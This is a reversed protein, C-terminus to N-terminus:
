SIVQDGDILYPLTIAPNKGQLTPKLEGFWKERNVFPYLEQDYPLGTYELLM